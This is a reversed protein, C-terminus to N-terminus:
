AEQLILFDLALGCLVEARSSARAAKSGLVADEAGLPFNFQPM